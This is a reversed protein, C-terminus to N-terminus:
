LTRNSGLSITSSLETIAEKTLVLKINNYFHKTEEFLASKIAAISFITYTVKIKFLYNLFAEFLKPGAKFLCKGITNDKILFFYSKTV